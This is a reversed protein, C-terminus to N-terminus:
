LIYAFGTLCGSPIKRTSIGGSSVSNPLSEQGAPSLQRIMTTQLNDKDYMM